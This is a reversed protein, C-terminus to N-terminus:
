YTSIPRNGFYDKNEKPKVTAKKFNISRGAIYRKRPRRVIVPDTDLWPGKPAGAIRSQSVWQM